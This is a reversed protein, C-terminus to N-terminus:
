QPFDLDTYVHDIDQICPTVSDLIHWHLRKLTLVVVSPRTIGEVCWM